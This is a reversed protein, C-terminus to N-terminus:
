NAFGALYILRNREIFSHLVDDPEIFSIRNGLYRRIEAEFTVYVADVDPQFPDTFCTPQLNIFFQPQALALRRLRRCIWPVRVRNDFATTFADRWQKKKLKERGTGASFGLRQSSMQGQGLFDPCLLAFFGGPALLRLTESLFNQPFVCHELVFVSFVAEFRQQLPITRADILQIFKAEPHRHSNAALIAPSFECGTYQSEAISGTGLVPAGGCGLELIRKGRVNALINRHALQSPDNWAEASFAISDYYSANTEYFTHMRAELTQLAEHNEPDVAAVWNLDRTPSNREGNRLRLSM